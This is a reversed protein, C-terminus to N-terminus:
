ENGHAEGDRTKTLEKSRMSGNVIGSGPYDQPMLTLM